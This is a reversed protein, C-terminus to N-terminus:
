AVDKIPTFAVRVGATRTNVFWRGCGCEALENAEVVPKKGCPCAVTAVNGIREVFEAPVERDFLEAFGPITAAFMATGVKRPERHRGTPAPGRARWAEDDRDRQRRELLDNQRELATAIRQLVEASM